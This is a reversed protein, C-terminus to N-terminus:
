PRPTPEPVPVHRPTALRGKEVVVLLALPRMM